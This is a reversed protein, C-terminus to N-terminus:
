KHLQNMSFVDCLGPPRLLGIVSRSAYMLCALWLYAMYNTIVRSVAASAVTVCWASVDLPVSQVSCRVCMRCPLSTGQMYDAKVIGLLVEVWCYESCLVKGIM